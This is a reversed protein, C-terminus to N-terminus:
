GTWGWELKAWDLAALADWGALALVGKIQGALDAWGIEDLSVKSPKVLGGWGLTDWDAAAIGEGQL